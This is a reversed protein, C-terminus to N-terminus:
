PFHFLPFIYFAHCLHSVDLINYFFMFSLSLKLFKLTSLFITNMDVKSTYQTVTHIPDIQRLIPGLLQRKSSPFLNEQQM